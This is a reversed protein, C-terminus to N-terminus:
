DEFTTLFTLIKVLSPVAVAFGALFTVAGGVIAATGLRKQGSTAAARRAGIGLAMQTAGLAFGGLLPLYFNLLPDYSVEIFALSPLWDYEALNLFRLTGFVANVCVLAIAQCAGAGWLRRRALDPDARRLPQVPELVPALARTDSRAATAAEADPSELVQVEAPLVPHVVRPSSPRRGLRLSHLECREEGAIAARDCGEESCLPAEPVQERTGVTAM